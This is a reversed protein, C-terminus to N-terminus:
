GFNMLSADPIREDKDSYRPDPVMDIKRISQVEISYFGFEEAVMGTVEYVGRGRYPYQAAVQPFSVTDFFCGEHDLFCGFNMHERRATKTNKTNILYGWIRVMKGCLKPLHRALIPHRPMPEKLLKFPHCLAFGLLEIEDFADELESYPLAPIKFEKHPAKFLSSQVHRKKEKNLKFHAEWLLERKNKGTFRFANIRILISVQELSIPLRDIFDNFNVFPGHSKREEVVALALANELEHLFALGIFIDEGYINCLADSRNVCPAHINAGCMRAEHLYDEMRYFGGGNNVCAVMYELPYYTKLYLSQYSEVAYSASHGKAFAYGAFSAIQRWIEQALEDSYGKQRCNSFYQQKVKNFESRSRFKGSMGRRLVDAEALTLGAFYHAVKIVDEQYVMVGFTDPMIELMTPHADRRKEPYRFRKIYERMMGSQSVGPRIISSAAVLGLYTDVKLKSLLGRMAPSEVYFCGIAQGNKLNENIEDDEKFSKIDHIDVVENKNKLIIDLSDRIKGLGRQALIDFKYLGADEAIVMDFDSTAFGKPPMFTTGYHHLDDEAILIGSSHVSCHSPFDAILHGYRLVLGTMKDLKSPHMNGNALADIEHKPLGFVKGLERIVARQQFTVYAGVLSTHPFRRFIYQTIDDRDTWSFDIDFDPPNKRYLNIFREFYLDLEIPDVDTIRLLYALISNAGSGRGVHFYGKNRAYTTIDWNILFYAMFGKKEIIDMEMAIREKVATSAQGHYRYELGEQSLKEMLQWDGRATGTYTKQNNHSETDGFSFNLECADLLREANRWIGPYNKYVRKLRPLPLMRHFAQGEESVQLKSLLTNNDIARLLRHANFHAKNAFSVTQLPVLKDEQLSKHRWQLSSVQEPRLGVFENSRLSFGKYCELPYIVFAHQFKPARPPISPEATTLFQSLYANIERFGQHNKALAVFLPQAGNRFDIGSVVKVGYKAAMRQMDMSASTSNIDTHALVSVGCDVAQQLLEDPKLTGYKYSFHTHCNLYM